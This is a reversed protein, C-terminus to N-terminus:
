SCGEICSPLTEKLILAFVFFYYQYVQAKCIIVAKIIEGCMRGESREVEVHQSNLASLNGRCALLIALKEKVRVVRQLYVAHLGPM